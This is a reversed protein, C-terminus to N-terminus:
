LQEESEKGIYIKIGGRCHCLSASSKRQRQPENESLAEENRATLRDICDDRKLHPVNLQFGSPSWESEADLDFCHSTRIPEKSGLSDGAGQSNKLM